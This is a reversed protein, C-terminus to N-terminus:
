TRVFYFCVPLFTGSKEFYVVSNPPLLVVVSSPVTM